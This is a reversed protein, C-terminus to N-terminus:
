RAGLLCYFCYTSVLQSYETDSEECIPLTLFSGDDWVFVCWVVSVSCM